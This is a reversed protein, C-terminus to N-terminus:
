NRRIVANCFDDWCGYGYVPDGVKDWEAYWEQIIEAQNELKPKDLDLNRCCKVTEVFSNVHDCEEITLFRPTSTMVEM